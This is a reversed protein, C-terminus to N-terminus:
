KTKKTMTPVTKTGISRGSAGAKKLDKNSFKVDQLVDVNGKTQILFTVISSDNENKEPVNSKEVKAEKVNKTRDVIDTSNETANVIVDIAVKLNEMDKTMNAGKFLDKFSKNLSTAPKFANAANLLNGINLIETKVAIPLKNVWDSGPGSGGEMQFGFKQKGPKSPKRTYFADKWQDSVAASGSNRIPSSNSLTYGEKTKSDTRLDITMTTVVDYSYTKVSGYTEKIGITVEYEDVVKIIKIDGQDTKFIIELRKELGEKDSYIIPNSSVYNYPSEHPYKFYLPDVSMWRGLRSDYIRAGFDLNNGEGSIEDDNEKGNFGWSYAESSYTRGPMLMGFPYYTTTTNPYYKPM